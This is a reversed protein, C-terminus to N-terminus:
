KVECYFFCFVTALVQRLRFFGAPTTEGTLQIQELLGGEAQQRQVLFPYTILM